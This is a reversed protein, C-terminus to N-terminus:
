TSPVIGSGILRPPLMVTDVQVDELGGLLVERMAQPSFRYFDGPSNHVRYTLTSTIAASGFRHMGPIHALRRQLQKLAGHEVFGPIGIVVVAGPRAVRRIEALTLWFEPDHELVANCLVADFSDTEFADMHNANGVVVEFDEYKGAGFLNLGVKSRAGVLSPLALLSQKGLVAGIELM